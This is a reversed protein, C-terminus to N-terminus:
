AYVTEGLSLPRCVSLPWVEYLALLLVACLTADSKSAEKDNLSAQLAQLARHYQVVARLTVDSMRVNPRNGLAAYACAGFAYALPSGPGAMRMLPLVFDMYGRSTEQRPVLIFNSVFLCAAHDQVPVALARPLEEVSEVSSDSSAPSLTLSEESKPSSPPSSSSSSSPWSLPEAAPKRAAPAPKKIIRKARRATAQTENRHM